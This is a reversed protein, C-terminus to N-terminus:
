TAFNVANLLPSPNSISKSAVTTSSQNNTVINPANVIPTGAVNGQGATSAAASKEAARNSLAGARDPTPTPTIPTPSQTMALDDGGLGFKNISPSIATALSAATTKPALRATVGLTDNGESGGFLQADKAGGTITSANPDTTVAAAPDMGQKKLGTKTESGDGFLYEFVNQGVYEGAAWGTAAGGVAGLFTGIGPLGVATGLAAGAVMGIGTLAVSGYLATLAKTAAAAKVKPSVDSMLINYVDYGTLVYAIPKVIKAGLGGGWNALKELGKFKSMLKKWRGPGSLKERGATQIDKGAIQGAKDGGEHVFKGGGQMREDFKYKKGEHEFMAGQQIPRREPAAAGTTAGAAAATTTAGGVLAAVGAGATIFGAAALALKIGLFAAGMAVLGIGISAILAVIGAKTLSGTMDEIGKDWLGLQVALEELGAFFGEKFAEKLKIIKGPLKDVIWKQWDKWMDSDLFALLGLLMGGSALGKLFTSISGVTARIPKIVMGALSKSMKGFFELQKNFNLKNELDRERDKSGQMDPNVWAAIRQLLTKRSTNDESLDSRLGLVEDDVKDMRKDKLFSHHKSQLVFGAAIESANDEFSSTLTGVIGDSKQNNESRLKSISETLQGTQKSDGERQRAIQDEIKKLGSVIEEDAM